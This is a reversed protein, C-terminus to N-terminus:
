YEIIVDLMSRIKIIESLRFDHLGSLWSEITEANENMMTILDEKTLKDLAMIAEIQDAIERSTEVFEETLPDSADEFFENGEKWNGLDPAENFDFDENKDM